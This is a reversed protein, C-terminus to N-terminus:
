YGKGFWSVFYYYAGSIVGELENLNITDSFHYKTLFFYVDKKLCWLCSGKVTRAKEDTPNVMAGM